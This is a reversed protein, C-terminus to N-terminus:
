SARKRARADNSVVRDRGCRRATEVRARARDLVAQLTTGDGPCCAVGVSATLRQKQGDPMVVHQEAIVTCLRQALVAAADGPMGPCLVGFTAGDLRAILCDKRCVTTLVSGMTQLLSDAQEHDLTQNLHRFHDLNVLIAAWPYGPRLVLRQVMQEFQQRNPLCTVPDTLHLQRMRKNLQAVEIRAAIVPCLTELLYIHHRELREGGRQAIWLIGHSDTGARLAAAALCTLGAQAFTTAWQERSPLDPWFAAAQSSLIRPMLQREVTDILARNPALLYPGHGRHLLQRNRRGAGPWRIAMGVAEVGMLEYLQECATTLLDDVTGIGCLQQGLHKLSQLQSTQQLLLRQSREQPTTEQVVWLRGVRNSMADHVPIGQFLFTGVRTEFRERASRSDDADIQRLRTLFLEQDLVGLDDWFTQPDYVQGILSDSRRHLLTALQQNHAAVRGEADVLLIADSMHDIVLNLLASKDALERQLRKSESVDLLSLRVSQLVGDEDRVGACEVLVDITKEGTEIRLECRPAAVLDLRDITQWLLSRDEPRVVDLVARDILASEHDVGLLQAARRNAEIIHGSRNLSVMAAPAFQYLNEFARERRRLAQSTADIRALMGGVAEALQAFEGSMQRALQYFPQPSSTCHVLKAVKSLPGTFWWRLMLLGALTMVALILWQGALHRMIHSRTQRRAAPGDVLLELTVVSGRYLFPAKVLTSRRLNIEDGGSMGQEPLSWVAADIDADQSPWRGLEILAWDSWAVRMGAIWEDAIFVELREALQPPTHHDLDDALVQQLQRVTQTVDRTIQTQLQAESGRLEQLSLGASICVGGLVLCAVLRTM